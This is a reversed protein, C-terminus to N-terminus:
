HLSIGWWCGTCWEDSCTHHPCHSHPCSQHSCWTRGAPWRCGLDTWLSTANKRIFVNQEAPLDGAVWTLECCHLQGPQSPMFCWTVPLSAANNELSFMVNQWCTVQLGPRNVTINCKATQAAPNGAPFSFTSQHATTESSAQSSRLLSFIQNYHRLQVDWRNYYQRYWVLMVLTYLAPHKLCVCFGYHKRRVPKDM